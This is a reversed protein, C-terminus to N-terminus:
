TNTWNKNPPRLDFLDFRRDWSPWAGSKSKIDSRVCAEAFLQSFAATAYHRQNCQSGLLMTEHTWHLLLQCSRAHSWSFWSYFLWKSIMKITILYTHYGPITEDGHYKPSSLTMNPTTWLTYIGLREHECGSALVEGVTCFTRLSTEVCVRQKYRHTRTYRCNLVNPHETPVSWRLTLRNCHTKWLM